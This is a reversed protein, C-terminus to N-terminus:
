ETSNETGAQTAASQMARAIDMNYQADPLDPQLRLAEAFHGIAEQLQGTNILAVGLDNHVEAYDPRLQLAQQFHGIAAQSAGSQTLLIGLNYHANAFAPNLDVARQYHRMAEQPQGAQALARGLNYHADAFDPSLRVAEQYHTIAEQLQGAQTLTIGLNYHADAFDPQYKLAEESHEIAEALRGSDRLVNSLNNHADAYNPKLRLAQQFHEIAEQPAGTNALVVALNNHLAYADPNKQLTARYLTVQDAYLRSQRWTLLALVATMAAAVATPLWSTPGRARQQWRGWAAAVLALVGILAMHQYHDAVPSYQMFGTDTFGLVPVLSICFFAWAFLLSRGWSERYRWLVGTVAVISLLPLWWAIQEVHIHWRPYVFALDLPLLAKHLYFWVVAGAGLLRQVFDPGPMDTPLTRAQFWVNVPVLVADILLFPALRMLDRRTVPRQWRLLGLLILPLGAASGKSLMALTFTALSLGYWTHVRPPATRRQRATEANLFCLISLLFFLLALLNKLQAIWAVSEVNVPHVAFLLTALFAGPIALRQLIVWILLATVIHVLLNIVHYGTPSLGWLRWEIWLTTNFVPWYDTPETTLWFRYPGDAAKILTSGTVYLDDDIIFEGHLSPAYAIATIVTVLAIGVVTRRVDSAAAGGDARTPGRPQRPKTM